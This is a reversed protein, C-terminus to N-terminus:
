RDPAHLHAEIDELTRGRTEPVRLRVFVLFGVSMLAFFWFAVAVRQPVGPTGVFIPFALAIFLNAAWNSATAVAAGRARVAVPFVESVLLWALPGASIAFFAMFSLVAAVTLAGNLAIAPFALGAGTLLLSVAIGVLGVSLLPRRGFRHTLGVSALAAITNVGGVALSAIEAGSPGDVGAIRFVDTSYYIVAGVGVLANMLAMAVGVTLAARYRPRLLEGFSPAPAGHMTEVISALEPEVEGPPRMRQLARRAGDIQGRRALFRPSPPVLAVGVIQLLAPVLGVAFMWRWAGSPTFALGVALALLIGVTVFLQYTTLMAGRLRAPCLEALFLPAVASTVGVAIGTLVRGAVLLPYAPAAATLATGFLALAGAALLARRRGLSDAAPGALFCGILAGAVLGSVVIAAQVGSLAFEATFFGIADNSVAIAYGFVTGTSAALVVLRLLVGPPRTRGAADGTDDGVAAGQGSHGKGAHCCALAQTM